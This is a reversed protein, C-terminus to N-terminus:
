LCGPPPPTVATRRRGDSLKPEDDGECCCWLYLSVEVFFFKSQMEVSVTKAGVRNWKCIANMTCKREGLPRVLQLQLRLM